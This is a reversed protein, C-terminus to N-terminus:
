VPLKSAVRRGRFGQSQAVQPNFTDIQPGPRDGLRAMAGENVLSTFWTFRKIM